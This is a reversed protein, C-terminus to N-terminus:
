KLLILKKRQAFDGAKIKYLYIGSAVQRGDDDKGGWQVSHSGATQQQNVLTTIRQGSLNYVLLRVNSDEPIQYQITTNSNFPNPYNQALQPNEPFLKVSLVNSLNFSGDTDIQKLRYKVMSANGKSDALHDTFRYNYATTTTGHGQVFGITKWNSGVSREVEFGYNNTETLTQWELFVGRDTLNAIFFSLEVPIPINPSFMVVQTPSNEPIVSVFINGFVDVSPFSIRSVGAFKAVEILEGGEVVPNTFIWFESFTSNVGRIFVNGNPWGPTVSEDSVLQVIIGSPATGFVKLNGGFSNPNTYIVDSNIGSILLEGTATVFPNPFLSEPATGFIRLEGGPTSPDTLIVGGGSVEGV